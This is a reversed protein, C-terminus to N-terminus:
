APLYGRDSPQLLLVADDAGDYDAPQDGVEVTLVEGLM